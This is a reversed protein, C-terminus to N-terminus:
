FAAHSRSAIFGTVDTMWSTVDHIHQSTTVHLDGFVLSHLVNALVSQRWCAGRSWGAFHSPLVSSTCCDAYEFAEELGDEFEAFKVFASWIPKDGAMAHLFLAIM